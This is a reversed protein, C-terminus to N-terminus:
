ILGGTEFIFETSEWKLGINNTSTTLQVAFSKGLGNAGYWNKIVSYDSGWLANDWTSSDWVGYTNATTSLASTSQTLDYDVNITVAISPSGNSFIIPRVMTMRKTLGPSGFNNFAQICQANIQAGGDTTGNWALGVFSQGGFYIQDNFRCWTYAPWGQFNAWAGNITNMVYQQQQGNAVPVNLILMNQAPFLVTEWGFNGSYNNVSDTIQQRIKDTLAIQTSVRDSMLARSLPVLGDRNILVVDGAYKQFCRYGIPAGVVFVGVLAWTSANSPDTGKYVAIEGQSTIFVAYDDMGQGADLSWTAMAILHGGLKFISGFDLQSAAGGISATPLYWASLTNAQVFFLRTKFLNVNILQSSTVGTISAASFSTGNYLQVPDAGNAMVLYNGGSTSCNVYQWQDSSFGSAIAAGIAGGSTVDYIGGNSCAFLKSSTPSNYPALTKVTSSFGTAFSTYGSRVRVDSVFPFYNVMVPADEPAMQALSDRNNWGGVPSPVTISQSAM